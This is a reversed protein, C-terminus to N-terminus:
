RPQPLQRRIIRRVFEPLLSWVDFDPQRPAPLRIKTVAIGDPSLMSEVSGMRGTLEVDPNLPVTLEGELHDIMGSYISAALAKAVDVVEKTNVLRDPDRPDGFLVSREIRQPAGGQDSWAFRATRTNAHVHLEPGTADPLQAQVAIPLLGVADRFEVVQDWTQRLDNPSATVGTVIISVAHGNTLRSHSLVKLPGDVSADPLPFTIPTADSNASPDYGQLQSPAVGMTNGLNDVFYDVHVIGLQGDGLVKLMAQAKIGNVLLDVARVASLSTDPFSIRNYALQTPDGDTKGARRYSPILAYNAYVSAPAWANNLPDILAVRRDLIGLLREMWRINIQFTQRYHNRLEKLWNTYIPDQNSLCDMYRNYGGNCWVQRLVQLTLPPLTKGAPTIPPFAAAFASLLTDTIEVWTGAAVTGLGPINLQTPLPMVNRMTRDDASLTTADEVYDFRLEDECSFHVHIKAPREISRSVFEPLTSGVIPTDGADAVAKIESGDTSNYLKTVGFRDVKCQTGPILAMVRAMAADGPDDLELGEVTLSNAYNVGTDVGTFQTVTNLVDLLVDQPLWIDKYAPPRLSFAAYVQDDTTFQMEVLPTDTSIQRKNGTRRKVNYRKLVTIYPWQWRVDSIWVAAMDPHQTPVQRLFFLRHIEESPQENDFDILLDIGGVADKANQKFQDLDDRAILFARQFPKVGPTFVWGVRDLALLNIGALTAKAVSM